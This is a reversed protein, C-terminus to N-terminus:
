KKKLRLRSTNYFEIWDEVLTIYHTLSTINNSYLVEKKLLSHWSEIPSNDVPSGKPSMSIIIGKGQCITKYEYSTYQFGQDSHLICGYVDKRKALAQNLTDMVLKNDNHRSIAYAVIKM